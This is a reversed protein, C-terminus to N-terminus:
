VEVSRTTWEFGKGMKLASLYAKKSIGNEKYYKNLNDCNTQEFEEDSIDGQERAYTLPNRQKDFQM